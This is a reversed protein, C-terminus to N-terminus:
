IDIEMNGNMNLYHKKVKIESMWGRVIVTRFKNTDYGNEGINDWLWTPTCWLCYDPSIVEYVNKEVGGQGHHAMQVYDCRIDDSNCIELLEQGGEVTLDGLFLISKGNTDLRLVISSNNFIERTISINPERLCTVTSDGIKYVDGKKATIVNINYKDIIKNMREILPISNVADHMAHKEMLEYSIFNYCLNHIKFEDGHREMLEVFGGMHDDHPHTIFWTDIETGIEKLQSYLNPYEFPYGGDIVIVKDKDKFIFSMCITDRLSTQM